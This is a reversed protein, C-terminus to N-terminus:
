PGECPSHDVGGNGHFTAPNRGYTMDRASEYMMTCNEHAQIVLVRGHLSEVYVDGRGPDIWVKFATPDGSAVKDVESIILAKLGHFIASDSNLM